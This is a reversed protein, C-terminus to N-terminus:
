LATKLGPKRKEANYRQYHTNLSECHTACLLKKYSPMIWAEQYSISIFSGPLPSGEIAHYWEVTLNLRHRHQSPKHNIWQPNITFGSNIRSM